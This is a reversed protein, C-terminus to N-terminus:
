YSFCPCVIAVQRYLDYLILTQEETCDPYSQGFEQLVCVEQYMTLVLENVNKGKGILQKKQLSRKSVEFAPIALGGTLAAHMAQRLAKHRREPMPKLQTQKEM